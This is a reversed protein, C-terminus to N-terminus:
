DINSVNVYEINKNLNMNESFESWDFGLKKLKNTKIKNFINSTYRTLEIDLKIKAIKKEIEIINNTDYSENLPELSSKLLEHLYKKYNDRAKVFYESKLLYYDKNVFSLDEEDIVAIFQTPEEKDVEVNM